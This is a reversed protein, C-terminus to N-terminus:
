FHGGRSECLCHCGESIVVRLLEGWLHGGVKLCVISGRNIVLCHGGVKVLFLYM